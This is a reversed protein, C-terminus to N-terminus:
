ADEFEVELQDEGFDIVPVGMRGLEDMFAVKGLGAIEAAQGISVRELEFLKVALLLRLERELEPVTRGSALLLDEFHPVPLLHM